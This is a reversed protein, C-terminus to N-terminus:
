RLVEAVAHEPFEALYLVATADNDFRGGTQKDVPPVSRISYPAGDAADVDWSFARWLTADM